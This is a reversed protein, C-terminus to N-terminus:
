ILSAVARGRDAYNELISPNRPGAIHRISGDAKTLVSRAFATALVEMRM